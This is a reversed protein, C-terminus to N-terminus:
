LGKHKPKNGAFLYYLIGLLLVAGVAYWLTNDAAAPTPESPAASPKLTATPRPASPAQKATVQPAKFEKLIAPDLKKAVQVQVEFAQNPALTVDWTAIISGERVSKPEPAITVLGDLYDQYSLPLPIEIDGSVGNAPAYYAYTFETSTEGFIGSVESSAGLTQVVEVPGPEITPASVIPPSSQSPATTPAPAVSPVPTPSAASSSTAPTITFTLLDSRNTLGDQSFAYWRYNVPGPQISSFSATWTGDRISGSTLTASINTTADMEFVVDRIGRGALDTWRSLFTFTGCCASVAPPTLSMLLPHAVTSRGFGFGPNSFLVGANPGQSLTGTVVDLQYSASIASLPQSGDVVILEAQYSNSTGTYAAVLATALVFFLVFRNM